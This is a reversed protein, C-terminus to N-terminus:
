FFFCFLALFEFLCSHSHNSLSTLSLSLSFNFFFLVVTSLYNSHTHTVIRPQHCESLGHALDRDLVPRSRCTWILPFISIRVIDKSKTEKFSLKTKDYFCCKHFIAMEIDVNQVNEWNLNREKRKRLFNNSNKAVTQIQGNIIWKIFIPLKNFYIPFLLHYLIPNLVVLLFPDIEHSNIREM